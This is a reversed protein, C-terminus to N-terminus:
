ISQALIINAYQILERTKVLMSVLLWKLYSPNTRALPKLFFIWWFLSPMISQQFMLHRTVNCQTLCCLNSLLHPKAISGWRICHSMKELSAKGQFNECEELVTGWSFVLHEFMQVEPPCKVNLGCCVYVIFMCIAYLYTTDLLTINSSINYILEKYTYHISIFYDNILLM